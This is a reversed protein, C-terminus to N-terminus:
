VFEQGVRLAFQILDLRWKNAIHPPFRRLHELNDLTTPGSQDLTEESLKEDLTLSGSHHPFINRGLEDDLNQQGDNLRDHIRRLHFLEPHHRLLTEGSNELNNELACEGSLGAGDASQM